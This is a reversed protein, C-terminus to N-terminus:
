REVEVQNRDAPPMHAIRLHEQLIAIKKEYDDSVCAPCVLPLFELKCIKCICKREGNM